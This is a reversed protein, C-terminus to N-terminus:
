TKKTTGHPATTRAKGSSQLHSREVKYGISMGAGLSIAIAFAITGLM